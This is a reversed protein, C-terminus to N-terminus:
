PVAQYTISVNQAHEDKKFIRSNSAYRIHLQDPRLWKIDAWPGGWHGARAKGHDDDAVFVREGYSATGDMASVTVQTSFGTTAGCNREVLFAKHRADPALASTVLTDHCQDACSNFFPLVALLLILNRM